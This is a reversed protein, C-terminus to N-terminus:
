LNRKNYQSQIALDLYDGFTRRQDEGFTANFMIFVCEPPYSNPANTLFTRLVFSFHPLAGSNCRWWEPLLFTDQGKADKREDLSKISQVIVHYKNIESVMVKIHPGIRPHDSLKFLNLNDIDAVSINVGVVYLPNFIRATKLRAMQDGKKIEITKNWYDIAPAVITHVYGKVVEM